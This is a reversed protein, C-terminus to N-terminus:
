GEGVLRDLEERLRALRRDLDAKVQEIRRLGEAAVHLDRDALPTEAVLARIKTAEVVEHAIALREALIAGEDRLVGVETSIADLRRQITKPTM